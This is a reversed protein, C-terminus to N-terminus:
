PSDDGFDLLRQLDDRDRVRHRIRPSRTRTPHGNEPLPSEDESDSELTPRPGELYVLIDGKPVEDAPEDGKTTRWTDSLAVFRVSPFREGNRVMEGLKAVILSDDDVESVVSPSHTNIIVQRLPNDPGIPENTDVAIDKLLRLMAPIRAPHIGNEPEELCIVGQAGPDLDIIALALFRLTGDSLARAPHKTGDNGLAFLTWLERQPDDDVGVERVDEILGALRNAVRAYVASSDPGESRKSAMGPPAAGGHALHYLTAALHSGNSGLRSVPTYTDPERLAAPELQLRRWSQMERRALVATRNEAANVSSLVTRPLTTARFGAPRGGSKGRDQHLQIVTDAGDTGSSSDETSIFPVTRRGKVTSDRWGKSHPFLLSRTADNINIHDLSEKRLALGGYSVSGGSQQLGLELSYRLFTISAEAAQGLDDAGSAPIIMEAMFSMTADRRSGVRHFLNAVDLTKGDRISKAAEILPMEALASLFGIADFLNSKGVGNSGAICTFPGFRVDVDVLNKFGNIKLRTLM